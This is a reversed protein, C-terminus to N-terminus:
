SCRKIKLIAFMSLFKQFINRYMWKKFYKYLYMNQSILNWFYIIIVFVFLINYIEVKENYIMKWFTYSFYIFWWLIFRFFWMFLYIYFSAVICFISFNIRYFLTSFALHTRKSKPYVSTGISRTWEDLNFDITLRFM